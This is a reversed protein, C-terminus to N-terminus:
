AAYSGGKTLKDLERLASVLARLAALVAGQPPDVETTRNWTEAVLLARCADALPELDKRSLTM